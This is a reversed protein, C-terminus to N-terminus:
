TALSWIASISFIFPIGIRVWDIFYEIKKYLPRSSPDKKLIDTLDNVHRNYIITAADHEAASYEPAPSNRFAKTQDAKIKDLRIVEKKSDDIRSQANRIEDDKRYKMRDSIILDYVTALQVVLAIYTILLYGLSLLLAGYLASDKIILFPILKELADVKILNMSYLTAVGATIYLWKRAKMVRSYPGDAATHEDDGFFNSLM